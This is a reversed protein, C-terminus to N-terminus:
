EDDKTEPLEPPDIESSPETESLDEDEALDFKWCMEPITIQPITNYISMTEQAAKVAASCGEFNWSSRMRNVLNIQQMVPEFSRRIAAQQQLIGSLSSPGAAAMAMRAIEAVKFATKTVAPRVCAAAALAESFGALTRTTEV